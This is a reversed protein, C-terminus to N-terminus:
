AMGNGNALAICGCSTGFGTVDKDPLEWGADVLITELTSCRGFEYAPNALPAPSVGELGAVHVLQDHATDAGRRRAGDDRGGM